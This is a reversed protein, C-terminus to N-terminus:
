QAIAACPAITCDLMYGTLTASGNFSNTASNVEIYVSLSPQVGADLYALVPQDVVAFSSGVPIVTGPFSTFNTANTSTPTVMVGDLTVMMGIGPPIPNGSAQLHISVHQVALRHNAPVTPFSFICVEPPGFGGCTGSQVSQVSQYPIRGPDNVNLFLMPATAPNTVNVNPTGNIGVNWTGSQTAAVTGSVTTSGLTVPVPLPGVINVPAAGAGQVVSQRSNMLSGIAALMGRVGIAILKNRM